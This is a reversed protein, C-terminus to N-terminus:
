AAPTSGDSADQRLTTDLRRATEAGRLRGAVSARRCRVEEAGAPRGGADVEHHVDDLCRAPEERAAGPVRSVANRGRRIEAPAASELWSCGPRARRTKGPSRLDQSRAASSGDPATRGRRTEGAGSLGGGARVHPGSFRSPGAWVASGAAPAGKRL